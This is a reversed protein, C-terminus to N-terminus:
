PTLFARYFKREVSPWDTVSVAGLSNTLGTAMDFWTKLDTSRQLTYRGPLGKVTVTMEAPSGPADAAVLGSPIKLALTVVPVEPILTGDDLRFVQTSGDRYWLQVVGPQQGLIFTNQFFVVNNSYYWTFNSWDTPVLSSNFVVGKDDRAEGRLVNVLPIIPYPEVLSPNDIDTDYASAPIVTKGQADKVAGLVFENKVITSNVPFPETGNPYVGMVEQVMNLLITVKKGQLVPDDPDIDSKAVAEQMLRVLLTKLELKDATVAARRALIRVGEVTGDEKLYWGPYYNFSNDPGYWSYSNWWYPLSRGYIVNQGNAPRTEEVETTSPHQYGEIKIEVDIQANKALRYDLLARPSGIPLREVGDAAQIQVRATLIAFVIAMLIRIKM